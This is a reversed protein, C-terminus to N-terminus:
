NDEGKPKGTRMKHTRMALSTSKGSGKNYDGGFIAKKRM